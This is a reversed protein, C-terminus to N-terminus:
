EMLPPVGVAQVRDWCGVYVRGNEVAMARAAEAVPCLALLTGTEAHLLCLYHAQDKRSCPIAVVQDNTVVPINDFTWDWEWWPRRRM